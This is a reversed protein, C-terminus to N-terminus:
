NAKGFGSAQLLNFHRQQQKLILHLHKECNEVGVIANVLEKLSANYKAEYGHLNSEFALRQIESNKTARIMENIKTVYNEYKNVEMMSSINNEQENYLDYPIWKISVARSKRDYNYEPRQAKINQILDKIRKKINIKKDFFKHTSNTKKAPNVIKQVIEEAELTKQSLFLICHIADEDLFEPFDAYSVTEGLKWLMIVIWQLGENKTDKGEKLLEFFHKTQAVRVLEIKKKLKKCQADLKELDDNIKKIDNEVEETVQIKEQEKDELKKKLKMRDRNWTSLEFQSKIGQKSEFDLLTEKASEYDEIAQIMKKRILCSQERLISREYKVKDLKEQLESGSNMLDEEFLRFYRCREKFVQENEKKIRRLRATDVLSIVRSSQISPLINKYKRKIKLEEVIDQGTIRKNLKLTAEDISHMIELQADKKEWDSLREVSQKEEDSSNHSYPHKKRTQSSLLSFKSNSTSRLLPLLPKKFTNSSQM